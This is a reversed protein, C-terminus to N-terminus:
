WSHGFRNGMRLSCVGPVSLLFLALVTYYSKPDANGGQGFDVPAVETVAAALAAVEPPLVNAASSHRNCQTHPKSRCRLPVHACTYCWHQFSSRRQSQVCTMKYVVTRRLGRDASASSNLSSPGVFVVRIDDGPLARSLSTISSFPADPMPMRTSL